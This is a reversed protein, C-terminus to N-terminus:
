DQKIAVVPDVRAARRAPLYCALSTVAVILIPLTTFTLPDRTTVGFVMSSMVRSLLFAAPLGLAIGAIAHQVGQTMVKKAMSSPRAGLALRIGIEHERQRVRYAVVGYVGILGLGLGAAAFVTLLFSLLRPRGLTDAILTTYTQMEAVPVVPDIEFAAQRVAAGIQEPPGQTRVVMAMPFMFTQLFPRFAEAIPERDVSLHRVDGVVGVVEVSEDQGTRGSRMVLTRGIAAAPDDFYRRALTENLIAVPPADARDADTFTRGYRLPIRMTQFYDGHVFRWGVQPAPQGPEVPRDSRRANTTWAYGSMPLHAALAVGTVGPMAKVRDIIQQLYPYGTTMARHKSTTQLRFTLVNNPDFGPNVHQLNWMSRLMLMSGIGLVVALSIQVAVLAGLARRRAPTETVRSQRLLPQLGPRASIFAPIVSVLVAVAISSAMVIAFVGWDLSIEATRPVEPPIRSILAPMAVYALGTGALAGAVALVAQEVIILQVLRGRSAGLATRLAMESVREISRGLVLTGLNVAGLMLILGVAGLLILLAPRVTGTMSERLPLVHVTRGWDGAKALDKRMAATLGALERTAADPTVGPELRAVAQSFTAKFNRGSPDWPLASWLDHGRSFIDFEPPMVGVITHAEGDLQIGRGIVSADANFRSRWLRDSLVAVGPAGPRADGPEITRGLSPRAGLARFMNDSVRGGTVKIPEGSDAVLGMMWGPSIAAIQAFSRTHERWYGIEENSVFTDPWFAVLRDPEAFPLPRLLVGRVVSFVAANAGSGLALIAIAVAAFGPRRFINRFALSLDPFRM